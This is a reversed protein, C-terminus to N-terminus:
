CNKLTAIKVFTYINNLRKEIIELLREKADAFNLNENIMYKYIMRMIMYNETEPHGFTADFIDLLSKANDQNIVKERLALRITEKLSNVYEEKEMFPYKEYDYEIDSVIKETMKNIDKETIKYNNLKETAECNIINFIGLAVITATKLIHRM